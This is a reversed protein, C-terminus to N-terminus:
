VGLLRLAFARETFWIGALALAASSGAQLLGLRYLSRRRVLFAAALFPLAIALQALEIGLNFALLALAFDLAPLDMPGLASAFGLGHILGFGFAIRWRQRPLWPWLNDLAALGITLAILSEVLRDPLDVIGTMALALSLGHALTFASLVKVLDIAAPPWREVPQWRGAVRRQAAPLLLVVLFLLHDFGFLLHEVGLWLFHVLGTGASREADLQIRRQEPSLVFTAVEGSQEVTLLGRHTPDLDFLLDYGLEVGAAGAPCALNFRLVAYTGDTHEDVLHQEPELACAGAGSSMRLRSGVYAEIADHRAKLEGWTM